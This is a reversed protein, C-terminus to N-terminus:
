RRRKKTGAAMSGRIGASILKICSRLMYRRDDFTAFNTPSGAALDLTFNVLCEGIPAPGFENPNLAVDRPMGLLSEVAIYNDGLPIRMFAGLMERSPPLLLSTELDEKESPEGQWTFMAGRLNPYLRGTAEARDLLPSLMTYVRASPHARKLAVAARYSDDLLELEETILLWLVDRWQPFAHLLSARAVGAAAALETFPIEDVWRECALSRAAALIEDRTNRGRQTKPVHPRVKTSQPTSTM